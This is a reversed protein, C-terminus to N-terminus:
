LELIIWGDRVAVAAYTFRLQVQDADAAIGTPTMPSVRWVIPVFHGEGSNRHARKTMAPSVQRVRAARTARHQSLRGSLPSPLSRRQPLTASTLVLSGSNSAGPSTLTTSHSTVHSAAGTEPVRAETAIAAQEPMRPIGGFYVLQPARTLVATSATLALLVTGAAAASGRRSMGKGPQQLIRDVRRALESQRRWAGLALSLSRRLVSGEALRTLCTAYAKPTGTARLVSDDCALEREACLRRDVWLLMPNLPFLTLAAKQLLNTWMDNRRVHESEHLLIQNLESATAREVLETPLLICPSFFGAVCPVQVEASARIHAAPRVNSEPLLAGIRVPQARRSIGALSAAGHVLRAFRYLSLGVWAVVLAVAWLSSIPVGAVGHVADVRHRGHLSPVFPLFSAALFTILWLAYRVRSALRPLCQLCAAVSCVLVASQWVSAIVSNALVRILSEAVGMGASTWMQSLAIM